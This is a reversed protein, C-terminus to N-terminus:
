ATPTSRICKSRRENSRLYVIEEGDTTRVVISPFRIIVTKIGGAKTLKNIVLM